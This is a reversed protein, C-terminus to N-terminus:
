NPLTTMNPPPHRRVRRLETTEWMIQQLSASTLTKDRRMLYPLASARCKISESPINHTEFDLHGRVYKNAVMQWSKKVTPRLAAPKFLSTDWWQVLSNDRFRTYRFIRAGGRESSWLEMMQLKPMRLAAQAASHLLEDIEVPSATLCLSQSTLTLGELNDWSVDEGGDHIPAFFSKADIIFSIDLEKLRQSIYFMTSAPEESISSAHGTHFVDNSDKYGSLRTVTQPLADLITFLDLEHNFGRDLTPPYWLEYRFTELKPLSRFIIDMRPIPRYFQRPIILGTVFNVKPLSPVSAAGIYRFDFNLPKGFVRQTKGDDDFRHDRFHHERDSPSYASLLLSLGLKSTSVKSLPGWETLISFLNWMSTTFIKDNTKAEEDTEASSCQDCDYPSLEIRLWILGYFTKPEFIGQWSRSVAAYASLHHLLSDDEHRPIISHCREPPCLVDFVALKLEVPLSNWDAVM